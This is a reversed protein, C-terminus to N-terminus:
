RKARVVPITEKNKGDQYRVFYMGKALMVARDFRVVYVQDLSMDVTKTEMLRGSVDFLQVTARGTVPAKMIVSLSGEFPVPYAKLWKNGLANANNRAEREDALLHYALAFNPIGYGFRENPDTYRNSSRQVYDIIEMNTFEPYAQWLCAVLGAMNPCAYSTGNGTVPNGATNALVTAQGVSVVNPKILGKSNPGWSSGPWINGNVDTGGVALVSDGDAPCAIFKNEKTLAGFNGASNVVIMGKKAALDAARTVISTNGDREAYSHDFAADDFDIYGLSSSIMDAGVSDAFEAGAAWNQEEVPYEGVTNETRLLWFGAHPASGVLVGPMNSAIISLCNAGHNHDENVSAHGAVFDWEGLVRNDLRLSDFAPNNKYNQFGGDLMAITIGRGTFGQEHLYEGQHLHIQNFTNGYNLANIETVRGSAQRDPLPTLKDDFKKSVPGESSLKAKPAV